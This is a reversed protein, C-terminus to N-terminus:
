FLLVVIKVQADKSCYKDSQNELENCNSKFRNEILENKGKTKM